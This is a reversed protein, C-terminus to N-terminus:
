QEGNWQEAPSLTHVYMDREKENPRQALAIATSVSQKTTTHVKRISSFHFEIQLSSTFAAFFSLFLDRFYIEISITM